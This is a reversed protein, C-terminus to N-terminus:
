GNDDQQQLFRYRCRKKKKGVRRLINKLIVCQYLSMMEFHLNFHLILWLQLDFELMTPQSQQKASIVEECFGDMFTHQWPSTSMLLQQAENSGPQRGLSVLGVFSSYVTVCVRLHVM